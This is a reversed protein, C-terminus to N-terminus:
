KEERGIKLYTESIQLKRMMAREELFNRILYLLIRLKRSKNEPSYEYEFLHITVKEMSM